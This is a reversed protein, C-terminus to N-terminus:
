NTKQYSLIKFDPRLIKSKLLLKAVIQLFENPNDGSLNVNYSISQLGNGLNLIYELGERDKEIIDVSGLISVNFINNIKCIEYTQKAIAKNKFSDQDTVRFKSLLLGITKIEQYLKNNLKSLISMIVSSSYIDFIYRHEKYIRYATGLDRIYRFDQPNNIMTDFNILNKNGQSLNDLRSIKTKAIKLVVIPLYSQTDRYYKEKSFM